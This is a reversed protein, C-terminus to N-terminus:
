HASTALIEDYRKALTRALQEQFGLGALLSNLRGRWEELAAASPPPADDLRRLFAFVVQFDQIQREQSRLFQAQLDYIAAFRKVEDYRMYGFAGTITGSTVAANKLEAFNWSLALDHNAFTKSALLDKAARDLAEIEKEQREVNKFLSAELEKRNSRIEETINERAERVLMRHDAWAVVGEFALAILVGATIMALHKVTERWTEPPHDPTHIEM